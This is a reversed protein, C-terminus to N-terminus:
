DTCAALAAVAVIGITAVIANSGTSLPRTTPMFRGPRLKNEVAFLSGDFSMEVLAHQM